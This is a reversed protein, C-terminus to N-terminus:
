RHSVKSRIFSLLEESAGEIPLTVFQPKVIFLLWFRPFEWIETVSTWPVTASGLESTVTFDTDSFQFTVTQNKKQRFRAVTHRYHVVYAAVILFPCVALVSGLVGVFWSREGQLLSWALAGCVVALAAFVSWDLYESLRRWFFSRVVQRLLPESFTVTLEQM